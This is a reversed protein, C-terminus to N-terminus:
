GTIISKIKVTVFETAEDPNEFDALTPLLDRELFAWDELVEQSQFLNNMNSSRSNQINLQTIRKDNLYSIKLNKHIVM